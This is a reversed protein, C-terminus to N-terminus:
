LKIPSYIIRFIVSDADYVTLCIIEESLFYKQISLDPLLFLAIYLRWTSNTILFYSFPLKSHLRFITGQRRQQLTRYQIDNLVSLIQLTVSIGLILNQVIREEDEKKYEMMGIYERSLAPVHSEATLCLLVTVRLYLAVSVSTNSAAM